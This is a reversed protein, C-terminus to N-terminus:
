TGKFGKIVWAVLWGLIYVSFIVGFFATAVIKILDSNKSKVKSKIVEWYEVAVGLEKKSVSVNNALFDDPSDLLMNTVQIPANDVPRATVVDFKPSGVRQSKIKRLKELREIVRLEDLEMRPTIEKHAKLMRKRIEADISALRELKQIELGVIKLSKVNNGNLEKKRLIIIHKNPMQLETILGRVRAENNKQKKYEIDKDTFVLLERDSSTLESYYDNSHQFESLQQYQVSILFVCFVLSLLSFVLWLRQWGNLVM